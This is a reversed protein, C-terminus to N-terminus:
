APSSGPGLDGPTGRGADEGEETGSAGKGERGGDKGGATPLAARPRAAGLEAPAPPTTGAPAAGKPTAPPPPEPAAPLELALRAIVGDAIQVAREAPMGAVTSLERVRAHVAALQERTLPPVQPEPEAKGRRLLRRLRRGAQRRLDGMAAAVAEKFAEDLAVWVVATVLAAVEELGFGLPERRSRARRLRRVATAHGVSALGDVLPLEEPALVAVVDRVIARVTPRGDQDRQPDM